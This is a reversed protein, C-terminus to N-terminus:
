YYMETLLKKMLNLDATAIATEVRTELSSSSLVSSEYENIRYTLQSQHRSIPPPSFANIPSALATVLHLARANM